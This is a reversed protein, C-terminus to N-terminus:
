RRAWLRRTAKWLNWVGDPMRSWTESTSRGAKGVLGRYELASRAGAASQPLEEPAAVPAGVGVTLRRGLYSEAPRM